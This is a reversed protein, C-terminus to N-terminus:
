RERADEGGNMKGFLYAEADSIADGLGASWKHIIRTAWSETVWEPIEGKMAQEKGFPMFDQLQKELIMAKVQLERQNKVWAMAQDLDATSSPERQENAALIANVVQKSPLLNAIEDTTIDTKISPDNKKGAVAMVLAVVEDPLSAAVSKDDVKVPPIDEFSM